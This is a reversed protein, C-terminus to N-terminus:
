RGARICMPVDSLRAIFKEHNVRSSYFIEGGDIETTVRGACKKAKRRPVDDPHREACRESLQTCCIYAEAICARVARVVDERPNDFKGRGNSFAVVRPKVKECLRRVFDSVDGDGPLGGHHPYVLLDAAMDGGNRELETLAIADMDAALLAIGAGERQVRIVASITNSTITRKCRSKNGAGLGALARSPSVVQFSCENFGSVSLEGETLGVEFNVDGNRQADDLAFLLDRWAESNKTGDSNLLVRRIHVGSNLVAILGGIHDYDSHSLVFLDIVAIEHEKLYSILAGGPAADVVVSAAGERIVTANGHGVDIVDLNIM